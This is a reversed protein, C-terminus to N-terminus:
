ARGNIIEVLKFEGSNCFEKALQKRANQESVAHIWRTELKDPSQLVFTYFMRGRVGSNKLRGNRVIVDIFSQNVENKYYSGAITECDSYHEKYQKYPMKEWIFDGNQLSNLQEQKRQKQKQEYSEIVVFKCRILETQQEGKYEKHAKVTGTVEALDGLKVGKVVSSTNWVYTNDQEDKMIYVNIYNNYGFSSLYDYNKIIKVKVTIKEKIQGVYGM